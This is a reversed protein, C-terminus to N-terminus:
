VRERCSARGIELADWAMNRERARVIIKDDVDTFNRVFTVRYGLYELYRRAVEFALASRAHGIHCLDYVTVGCVYMRVQGPMLPEFPELTRTLTNYVRLGM